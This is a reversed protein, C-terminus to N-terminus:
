HLRQLPNQQPADPHLVACNDTPDRRAMCRDYNEQQQRRAAKKSKEWFERSAREDAQPDRKPEEYRERQSQQRSAALEARRARLAAEGEARRAAAAVAPDEVPQPDPKDRMVHAVAALLVVALILRKMM